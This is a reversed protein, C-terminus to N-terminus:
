AAAAASGAQVMSPEVLAVFDDFTLETVNGVESARKGQAVVEAWESETIGPTGSDSDCLANQVDDLRIRGTGNADFKRFCELLQARDVKMRRQILASIFERYQIQQNGAPTLAAVIKALEEEPVELGVHRLGDMLEEPSLVGEGTKDLAMFLKRLDQTQQESLEKTLMLYVARKFKNCTPYNVLQNLKSYTLEDTNGYPSPKGPDNLWPHDLAEKATLRSEPKKTLLGKCLHV